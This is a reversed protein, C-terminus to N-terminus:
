TKLPSDFRAAFTNESSQKDESSKLWREKNEFVRKSPPAIMINKNCLKCSAFIHVQQGVMIGSLSSESKREGGEGDFESAVIKRLDISDYAKKIIDELESVPVARSKLEEIVQSGFEENPLAEALTILNEKNFSKLDFKSDLIYQVANKYNDESVRDELYTSIIQNFIETENNQYAVMAAEKKQKGLQAQQIVHRILCSVELGDRGSEALNLATEQYKTEVFIDVGKIKLIAEVMEKQGTACAIMLATYGAHNTFNPDIGEIQALSLATATLSNTVAMTLATEKIKLDVENVDIGRSLFNQIDKSSLNEENRIATILANSM